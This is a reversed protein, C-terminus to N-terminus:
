WGRGRLRDSDEQALAKGPETIGPGATIRGAHQASPSGPDLLAAGARPLGIMDAQVASRGTVATAILFFPVACLLLTAALLMAQNLFDAADLRHWLYEAWSGAYKKQGWEAARRVRRTGPRDRAKIDAQGTAPQGPTDSAGDTMM